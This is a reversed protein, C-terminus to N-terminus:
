PFVCGAPPDAPLVPAAEVGLFVVYLVLDESSENAAAHLVGGGPDVLATGPPYERPTCEDSLVSTLTGPGMNVLLGPGSHGHWPARAGAHLTIRLVALDSADKVNIARTRGGDTKARVQAAVEETFTGRALLEPHPLGHVAASPLVGVALMALAGLAVLAAARRGRGPNRLGRFAVSVHRSRM